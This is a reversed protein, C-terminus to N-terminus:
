IELSVMFGAYGQTAVLDIEHKYMLISGMFCLPKIVKGPINYEIGSAAKSFLHMTCDHVKKMWREETQETANISSKSSQM